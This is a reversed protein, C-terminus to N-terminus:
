FKIIENRAFLVATYSTRGAPSVEIAFYKWKNLPRPSIYPNYPAIAIFFLFIASVAKYSYHEAKMIEKFGVSDSERWIFSSGEHAHLKYYACIWWMYKRLNTKEYQYHQTGIWAIHGPTLRNVIIGTDSKNYVMETCIWLLKLGWYIM